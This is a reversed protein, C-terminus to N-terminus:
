LKLKGISLNMAELIWSSISDIWHSWIIPLNKFVPIYHNEWHSSIFSWISWCFIPNIHVFWSSKLWIQQIDVFITHQSLEKILSLIQVLLLNFSIRLSIIVGLINSDFLEAFARKWFITFNYKWSLDSIVASIRKKKNLCQTISIEQM